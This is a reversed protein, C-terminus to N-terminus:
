HRLMLYLLARPTQDGAFGQEQRVTDLSTAAANRLWAIYNGEASVSPLPATESLPAENVIPGTLPNAGRLFLRHLVDPVDTVLNGLHGLLAMGTAEYNL